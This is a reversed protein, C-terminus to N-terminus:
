SPGCRRISLSASPAPASSPWPDVGAQPLDLDRDVLDLGAVDDQDPGALLDGDVAFNALPCLATSSDMIVPSLMGTSFATPSWTIPALMLLFPLMVKARRLDAGIRHQRADDSLRASSAWPEFAGMACIASVTEPIKTGMTNPIARRVAPVQDEQAIATKASVTNTATNVIAQGPARPRAVGVAMMTPVPFPASCPTRILDPAARSQAWLISVITKSLVPVIVLAYGLEGVDDRSGPERREAEVLQPEEGEGGGGFLGRLMGQALGDQAGGGLPARVDHFGGVESETGPWPMRACM